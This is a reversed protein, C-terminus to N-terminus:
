FMETTKPLKGLISTVAKERSKGKWLEWTPSHAITELLIVFGSISSLGKCSLVAKRWAKEKSSIHLANYLQDEHHCCINLPFFSVTRIFQINIITLFFVSININKAKTQLPVAQFCFTLKIQSTDEDLVETWSSGLAMKNFYLKESEKGLGVDAPKEATSFVM